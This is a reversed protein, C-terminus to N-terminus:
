TAEGLRSEADNLRAEYQALNHTVTVLESRRMWEASEALRGEADTGKVLHAPEVGITRAITTIVDPTANREGRLVRSVISPSLGGTTALWTQSRGQSELM